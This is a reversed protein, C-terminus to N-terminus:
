TSTVAENKPWVRDGNGVGKKRESTNKGSKKQNM